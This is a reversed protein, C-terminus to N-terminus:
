WDEWIPVIMDKIEELYYSLNKLKAGLGWSHWQIESESQPLILSQAKKKREKGQYCVATRWWIPETSCTFFTVSYYGPAKEPDIGQELSHGRTSEGEKM